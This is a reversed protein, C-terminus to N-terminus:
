CHPLFGDEDFTQALLRREATQLSPERQLRLM